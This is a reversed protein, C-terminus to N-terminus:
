FADKLFKETAWILSLIFLKQESSDAYSGQRCRLETTIIKAPLASRYPFYARLLPFSLCGIPQSSDSCRSQPYTPM